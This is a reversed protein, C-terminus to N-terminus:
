SAPRADRAKRATPRGRGVKEAATAPASPWPTSATRLYKSAGTRSCPDDRKEGTNGVAISVLGAGDALHEDLVATWAHVDTDDVTLTPGLSLKVFEYRRQELVSKVRELVEYLEFPDTESNEDLVRHHDVHCLPREAQEAVSGFLLASTVTEAHWLHGPDSERM